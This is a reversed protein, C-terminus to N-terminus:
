EEITSLHNILHNKMLEDVRQKVMDILVKTEADDEHKKLMEIYGENVMKLALVALKNNDKLELERQYCHEELKGKNKLNDYMPKKYEKLFDCFQTKLGLNIDFGNGILFTINM